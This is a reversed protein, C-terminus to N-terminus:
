PEYVAIDWMAEGADPFVLPSLVGTAASRPEFLTLARVTGESDANRRCALFVASADMPHPVALHFEECGADYEFRQEVAVREAASAEYYSRSFSQTIVIRGSRVAFLRDADMIRGEAREIEASRGGAPDILAVIGPSRASWVRAPDSPAAALDFHFNDIPFRSSRREADFFTPTVLSDTDRSGAWGVVFGDGMRAIASRPRDDRTRVEETWTIADSAVSLGQISTNGVIVLEHGVVAVSSADPLIAGGGTLPPCPRLDGATITHRLVRAAGDLASVYYLWPAPCDM